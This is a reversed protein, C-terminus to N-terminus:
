WVGWFLPLTALTAIFTTVVIPLGAWFYDAFSYGGPGMVLVNVPHAFPTLVSTGTAIAIVLAFARPDSGLGQAAAIAVPVLVAPVAAGAPIFQNLVMSVIFLGAAVAIPGATGLSGTILDGIQRAAGTSSLAVEVPLMSGVLFVSRWEIAQYADEMTLCGTLVMALAGVFLVVSTPLPTVVAAVLSLALIIVALNMKSPRAAGDNATSLLIWDPDTRILDLKERQGFVLLTESGKLVLDGLDTRRLQGAHWMAAVTLGYRGRFDMQRLSQGIARSRPAVLIESFSADASTSLPTPSEPLVRAGLSALTAARDARGGLVLIDGARLREHVAPAPQRRGHRELALVTLGLESGIRTQDLSQGVLPSGTEVLVHSLRQSLRYSEALDASGQQQEVIEAAPSHDPLTRRGIFQIYVFGLLAAAGGVAAFDFVGLGQLGASQLVGSSVISATTFLTAMGGLHTALAMPMLLKSPSIRTRRTADMVAPMIVAASAINNMFLSLGGAAAMVLATMRGESAGGVRVLWRGIVASVGTRFLGGTLISVAIILMVASSSLGSFVQRPAVLGTLGLSLMVLIAVVDARLRESMFVAIAVILIVLLIITQTDMM